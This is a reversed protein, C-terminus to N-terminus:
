VVPTPERIDTTAPSYVDQLAVLIAEAVTDRFVPDALAAADEANTLYGVEVRVAPMRTRRLLDWTKGDVGGDLLSTRAVVEGQIATAIRRGVTSSAGAAGTGFYFCAVGRARPNAHGDTHLSILLDADLQNAFAARDVEGPPALQPDIHGRTLYARVGLAGLRGELRAALDAVVEAEILGHGTAGTESGGHGPDIIVLKGALGPGSGVWRQTERLEAPFGGTVTRALRDLAQFTVPGCLGDTPIGVNRQFDRLAHETEPGFLGDVRGPDFGLEFLRRQLQAIDDGSMLHSPAFRVVRDGLRWRAEDLLQWTQSGVVGDCALGRQQQFALVGERVVDDFQQDPAVLPIPPVLGLRSLHARVQAVAPGVDGFQLPLAADAPAPGTVPSPFGSM